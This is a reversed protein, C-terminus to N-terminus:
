VGYKEMKKLSKAIEFYIPDYTKQKRAILSVRHKWYGQLPGISTLLGLRVEEVVYSVPLFGFGAGDIIARAVVSLIDSEFVVHKRVKYEQFFADTEHRLKLRESPLVLGWPVANMFEKFSMQANVKVKLRRLADNSFMLAVPVNIHAIEEFQEDYHTKNTLVLEVEERRLKEFVSNDDGTIVSILRKYKDKQHRIIPSLIDAIFPREIQESIGIQIKQSRIENTSRLTNALDEATEFMRRCYAYTVEGDGTLAINRGRKEFLKLNLESELNKIQATLSPQAIKLHEAARSVGGLKATVYFYYLHNYNFM